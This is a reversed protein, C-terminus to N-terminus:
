DNSNQTMKRAIFYSGPLCVLVLIVFTLLDILKNQPMILNYVLQNLVFLVAFIVVFLIFISLKKKM